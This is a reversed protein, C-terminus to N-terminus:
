LTIDEFKVNMYTDDNYLGVWLIGDQDFGYYYQKKKVLEKVEERSFTHDMGEMMIDYFKDDFQLFETLPIVEMNQANFIFSYFEYMSDEGNIMEDGYILLSIYDDDYYTVNSYLSGDAEIRNKKANEGKKEWRKYIQELEKQVPIDAKNGNEFIDCVEIYYGYPIGNISYTYDKSKRNQLYYVPDGSVYSTYDDIALLDSFGDVSITADWDEDEGLTHDWFIDLIENISQGAKEGWQKVPELVKIVKDDMDDLFSGEEPKRDLHFGGIENAVETIDPLDDVVFLTIGVLLVLVRLFSKKEGTDRTRTIKKGKHIKKSSYTDFMGDDLRQQQERFEREKEPECHPCYDRELVRGCKPCFKFYEAM